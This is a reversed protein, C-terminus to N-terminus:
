EGKYINRWLQNQIKQELCTEKLFIEKDIMKSKKKM